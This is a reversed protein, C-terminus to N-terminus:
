AILLYVGVAGFVIAFFLDTDTPITCLFTNLIPIHCTFSHKNHEKAVFFHYLDYVAIGLLVVGVIQKTKM